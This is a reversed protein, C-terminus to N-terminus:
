RATRLWPELWQVTGNHDTNSVAYFVIRGTRLAAKAGEDNTVRILPVSQATLKQMLEKNEDALHATFISFLRDDRRRAAWDAFADLRDYTADLLCVDKVSDDLGGHELCFSIVRYAGSHGALLVRGVDRSKVRGATELTEMVEDVLRKLAGPEELRGGGSDAAEKPGQPFVLVVNQGSAVVQERLRQRDLARRVNTMHGHFYILLDTREGPQFARPIFLAVTSDTYHPDRAFTRGGHTFGNERSAHPFPANEMSVFATWGHEDEQGQVPQTTPRSEAPGAAFVVSAGLWVTIGIVKLATNM